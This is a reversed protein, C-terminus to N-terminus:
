RQGSSSGVATVRWCSGRAPLQRMEVPITTGAPLNALVDHTGPAFEVLHRVENSTRVEVTMTGHANMPRDITVPVTTTRGDSIEMHIFNM